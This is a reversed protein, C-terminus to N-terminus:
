RRVIGGGAMNLSGPTNTTVGLTVLGSVVLGSGNSFSITGAGTGLTSGGLQLSVCAANAVDVTVTFGGNIIVNDGTVPAPNGGWTSAASWNGSQSSTRVASFANAAVLMIVFFVSVVRLIPSRM